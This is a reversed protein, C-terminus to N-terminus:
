GQRQRRAAYEHPVHPAESLTRATRVCWATGRKIGAWGAAIGEGILAGLVASRQQRARRIHEEITLYDMRQTKMRGELPCYTPHPASM